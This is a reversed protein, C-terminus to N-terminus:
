VAEPSLECVALALVPRELVGDGDLRGLSEAIEDAGVCGAAPSVVAVQEVVHCRSHKAHQNHGSAAVGGVVADCGAARAERWRRSLASAPAFEKGFERGAREM